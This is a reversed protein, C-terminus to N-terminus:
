AVPPKCSPAGGIGTDGYSKLDPQGEQKNIPLFSTQLPQSTGDPSLLALPAYHHRIGFPTPLVYFTRQQLM